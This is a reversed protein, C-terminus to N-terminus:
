YSRMSKLNFDGAVKDIIGKVIRDLASSNRYDAPAMFNVCGENILKQPRAKAKKTHPAYVTTSHGGQDKVLRFCPADTEGDGIFIIQEFPVTPKEHPIFNNIVGHDYVDLTGKNIRFLYQTKTTYNLALAPWEAIDHHDYYFSSAYIAKFKKCIPSGEIMQCNYVQFGIDQTHPKM